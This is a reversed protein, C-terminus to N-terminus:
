SFTLLNIYRDASSQAVWLLLKLRTLKRDYKAALNSTIYPNTQNNEKYHIDHQVFQQTREWKHKNNIQTNSIYIM